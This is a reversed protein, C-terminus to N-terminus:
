STAAGCVTCDPRPKVGVTRSEGYLADYISLRGRLSQGAGTVVKIAEVAMMSGVVGPLPGLVGAEACSPVLAADPAKPFVCAYCPAGNAPDYTSIQGEWQTLAAAILPTKLGCAVENVLYRTEFNDTGDLILDYEAFLEACIERTLRRNYPKVTINPNQATVAASAALVKAKGIDDQRYIVQRQLNSNDVTDDDIVGLTGVGAAGLYLLAPAGLGGAGVVLVKAEALKKQGPGGIERLIMHRAYRELEAESFSGTQPAPSPALAKAPDKDGSRAKLWALGRVYAAGLLLLAFLAIWPQASGGTLQRIPHGDPLALQLGVVLAILVAIARWRVFTPVKAYAGYAYLAAAFGLVLAM